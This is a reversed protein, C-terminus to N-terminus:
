GEEFGYNLAEMEEGFEDEVMRCMAPTYLRSWHVGERPSAGVRALEVQGIRRERLIANVQDELGAEFRVVRDTHDVHPFLRGRGWGRILPLQKPYLELVRRLGEEGWPAVRLHYSWSILCDFHNRVATFSLYRSRGVGDWGSHHSGMLLFGCRMLADKTARSATRPNALYACKGIGHIYM